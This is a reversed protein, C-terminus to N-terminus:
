RDNVTMQYGNMTTIHEYVTSNDLIGYNGNICNIIAGTFNLVMAERCAQSDILWQVLKISSMEAGCQM